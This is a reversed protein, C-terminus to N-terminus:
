VLYVKLYKQAVRRCCQDEDLYFVSKLFTVMEDSTEHWMTACAYIRTVSDTDRISDEKKEDYRNAPINTVLEAMLGAESVGKVSELDVTQVITADDRRRNLAISQAILLGNYYPNVFLKETSALRECKPTWNHLTIWM